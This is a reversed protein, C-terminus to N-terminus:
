RVDSNVKKRVLYYGQNRTYPVRVVEGKLNNIPINGYPKLFSNDDVGFSYNVLFGNDELLQYYMNIFENFIREKDIGIDRGSFFYDSINSLLICSYRESSVMGPISHAEGFQYSIDSNALRRQMLNYDNESSMYLNNAKSDVHYFRKLYLNNLNEGNKLSFLLLRVYYEYVEPPLFHKIKEMLELSFELNNSGGFRLNASIFDYYNLGLALARRLNFTFYSLINIDFTDIKRVGKYVLNFIQDGSSLVSLASEGLQEKSLYARISETTMFYCKSYKSYKAGTENLVNSIITKSTNIAEELNIKDM